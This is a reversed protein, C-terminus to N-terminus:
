KEFRSILSCRPSHRAPLLLFQEGEPSKQSRTQQLPKPSGVITGTDTSISRIM